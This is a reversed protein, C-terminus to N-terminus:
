FPKCFDLESERGGLADSLDRHIDGTEPSSPQVM